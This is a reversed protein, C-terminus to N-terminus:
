LLYATIMDGASLENESSPHLALAQAEYAMRIDGSGNIVVPVLIPGEEIKVPFFEDLKVRQRRSIKLPLRLPTTASGICNELYHQVFLTFTALTSVPNGPLAFIMKHAKHGCWFPKGPRIAVKHFLKEVGLKQLVGPVYDADGASVGGSVIVIDCELAKSLAIVLQDMDDALHDAYAPIIQWKKLLAKLVAGNSNRIQVETVPQYIAVVENGTTILAVSPLKEVLVEYKGLSALVGIVSPTCKTSKSIVVLGKKADEGKKAINQFGKVEDLLFSVQGEKEVADERRIIADAGPPVAAGTMVKFCEGVNIKGKNVDGAYITDIITYSRLGNEFDASQIAFGDMAARNFPPYDRDAYVDEALTRGLADDLLIKEKGFSHAFSRIINQAESFFLM